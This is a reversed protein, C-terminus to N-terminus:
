VKSLKIAKRISARARKQDGSNSYAIGLLYWAKWDDQNERAYNAWRTFDNDAAQRLPRGSPSTPLGDGPLEEFELREGLRNAKIGFWIERIIAWAGIVPLLFLVFGMAVGVPEGSRMMEIAWQGIIVLYVGVAVTIAIVAIKTGM